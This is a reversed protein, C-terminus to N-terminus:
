SYHLVGKRVIHWDEDVKKLEGEEVPGIETAEMINGPGSLDMAPLIYSDMINLALRITPEHTVMTYSAKEPNDKDITIKYVTQKPIFGPELRQGRFIGRQPSSAYYIYQPPNDKAPLPTLELQDSAASSDQEQLGEEPEAEGEELEEIELDLGTTHNLGGDTPPEEELLEEEEEEFDEAQTAISKSLQLLKNDIDKKYKGLEEQLVKRFENIEQSTQTQDAQHNDLKQQQTNLQRSLIELQQSLQDVKNQLSELASTNTIPPEKKAEDSLPASQEQELRRLQEELADIRNERSPAEEIPGEKKETESIRNDIMLKLQEESLPNGYTQQSLGFFKKEGSPREVLLPQILRFPWLLVDFIQRTIPNTFRQNKLLSGTIVSLIIWGILILFLWYLLTLIDIGTNGTESPPFVSRNEEETNPESQAAPEEIYSNEPDLDPNTLNQWLENERVYTYFAYPVSQTSFISARDFNELYDRHLYKSLECAMRLRADAEGILEANYQGKIVQFEAELQKITNIRWPKKQLEQIIQREFGSNLSENQISRIMSQLITSRTGSWDFTEILQPISECRFIAEVQDTNQAHAGQLFLLLFLTAALSILLSKMNGVIM